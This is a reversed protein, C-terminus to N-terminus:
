AFAPAAPTAGPRAPAANRPRAGGGPRLLARPDPSPLGEAEVGPAGTAPSEMSATPLTAGLAQLMDWRIFRSGNPVGMADGVYDLLDKWDMMPDVQMQARVGILFQAWELANAKKTAPDLDDGPMLEIEIELDNFNFDEQGEQKGGLFVADVHTVNAAQGLQSLFRKVSMGALGAAAAIEPPLDDSVEAMEEIPLEIPIAVSNSECMYWAATRLVQTMPRRFQSQMYKQRGASAGTAKAIEFATAQGTIAGRQIDTLGSSRDLRQRLREIYDSQAPDPGGMTVSAVQSADFGPAGYIAGHKGHKMISVVRDNTGNVITLQRFQDAAAKQQDIQANIEDVLAATVALPSMPYLQDPVIYIGFMTYPGWAPGYYARPERIFTEEEASFSLTFVKRHEPVYLEIGVIQDREVRDIGLAHLDSMGGIEEISSDGTLRRIEAAKFMPKGNPLKASLLDDRDRIWVHGM